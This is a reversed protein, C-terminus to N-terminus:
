AASEADALSEDALLREDAPPQPERLRLALVATVVGTVIWMGCAVLGAATYGGDGPYTRGAATHSALIVGALASGVAYGIYRLVQNFSMASATEDARVSRLLMGPVVAFIGGVGLGEIAMLVFIEVMSGRAFSFMVMGALLAACAIPLVAAHSTRRVIAPAIRTAIFSGASFPVLALGGMVVSAGLGYGTSVPTQVFRVGLSLLLYMGVGALLAAVNATLVARHRLLSLRVLPHAVRLQHGIWLLTLVVGAAFVAVTRTSLWGWDEGESIALLLGCLGLALLVAGAVDLSEESHSRSAPVVVMAGILALVAVVAGFWYAGHVGGAEAVLGTLPYGLGIGTVTTISIIAVAPRAKPIPLADRVAAIALPTLSLGLGQMARGVLFVGFGVPLAAIVCGVGVIAIAVLIVTRRHRGDGLRGLTPTAIAGALMTATLVWQSTATSVHDMAAIAPVLPAGLSSVIASVLCAFVLGPLLLPHVGERTPAYDHAIPNSVAPSM